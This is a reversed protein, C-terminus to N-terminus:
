GGHGAGCASPRLQHGVSIPTMVVQNIPFQSQLAAPLGHLTIVRDDPTGARGDAGIDTFPFSVSYANNLASRGPVFQGILDDEKKSVFGARAGITEALQHEFFIGFEHTM